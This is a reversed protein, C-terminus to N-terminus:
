RKGKLPTLSKPKPSKSAKAGEVFSAPIGQKKAPKTSIRISKENLAKAM